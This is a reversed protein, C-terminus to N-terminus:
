IHVPLMPLPPFIGFAFRNRMEDISNKAYRSVVEAAITGTDQICDFRLGFTSMAAGLAVNPKRHM